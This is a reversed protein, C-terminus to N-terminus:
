HPAVVAVHAARVSVLSGAAWAPLSVLVALTVAAMAGALLRTRREVKAPSRRRGGYEVLQELRVGLDAGGGLAASGTPAHVAAKCIASALSLPDRTRAVAYEDADRELHLQLQRRATASGPLPRSVVTLANALLLLPRHHRRLHGYEHAVGAALEDRDLKGLAGDSVFVRPRGLTSAALLVESEAILTSGMPGRGRERGRVYASLAVASRALSAVIWLPSAVLALAPLATAADALPHGSVDLGAAHLCAQALDRFADSQPLLILAAIAGSAVLAARLALALTWIAGAAAPAVHTLRLRHPLAALLGAVVIVAPVVM